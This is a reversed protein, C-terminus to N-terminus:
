SGMESKWNPIAGVETGRTLFRKWITFLYKQVPFVQDPLFAIKQSALHLPKTISPRFPSHISAKRTYPPNFLCTEGTSEPNFHRGHRESNGAQEM